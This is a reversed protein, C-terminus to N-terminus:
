LPLATAAIGGARLDDLKKLKSLRPGKVNNRGTPALLHQVFTVLPEAASRGQSAETAVNHRLRGWRPGVLLGPTSRLSVGPLRPM